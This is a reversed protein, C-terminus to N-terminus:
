LASTGLDCKSDYDLYIIIQNVINQDEADIVWAKTSLVERPFSKTIIIGFRTAGIEEVRKQVAVIVM